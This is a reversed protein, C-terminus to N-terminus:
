LCIIINLREKLSSVITVCLYHSYCKSLEPVLFQRREVNPRVDCLRSYGTHNKIVFSYTILILEYRRINLLM